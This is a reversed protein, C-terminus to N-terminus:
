DCDPREPRISPADGQATLETPLVCTELVQHRPNLDEVAREISGNATEHDRVHLQIKLRTIHDLNQLGGGKAPNPGPHDPDFGPTAHDDLAVLATFERGTAVLNAQNFGGTKAGSARVSQRDQTGEVCRWITGGLLKDSGDMM